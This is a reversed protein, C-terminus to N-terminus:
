TKEDPGVRLPHHPPPHDHVPLYLTNEEPVGALALSRPVAYVAPDAVAVVAGDLRHEFAFLREDVLQNRPATLPRVIGLHRADLREVFVGLTQVVEVDPSQGPKM